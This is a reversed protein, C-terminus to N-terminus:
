VPLSLKIACGKGINSSIILSAGIASARQQMNLLGNGPKIQSREFGCGNDVIEMVLTSANYDLEISIQSCNAYKVSNNVAEKFIMLLDYRKTMDLLLHEVKGNFNFVAEINKAECVSSAYERMRAVISLMSDNKPSISWVIDRM